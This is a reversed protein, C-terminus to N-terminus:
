RKWNRTQPNRRIVVFLNLHGVAEKQVEDSLIIINTTASGSYWNGASVSFTISAGNPCFCFPDQAWPHGCRCEPRASIPAAFEYSGGIHWGPRDSLAQLPQGPPPPGSPGISIMPQYGKIDAFYRM